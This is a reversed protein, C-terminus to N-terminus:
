SGAAALLVVAIVIVTMGALLGWAAPRAWNVTYGVGFRKEVFVAPDGPNFYILGWKWCRDPTRDGSDAVPTARERKVMILFTTTPIIVIVALICSIIVQLLLSHSLVTGYLALQALAGILLALGITIELLMWNFARARMTAQPLRRVHKGILMMTHILLCVVLGVILIGYVGSISRSSWENPIGNQDFHVPFRGPISQWHMALWGASCFLILYPLALLWRPRPWLDARMTNLAVHIADQAVEHSRARHYAWLYSSAALVVFLPLTLLALIKSAETSLWQALLVSLVVVAATGVLRLIYGRVIAKASDSTVFDPAVTVSFFLRSRAMFPLSGFLGVLCLILTLNIIQVINIMTM